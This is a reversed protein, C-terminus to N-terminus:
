VDRNYIKKVHHRGFIMVSVGLFNIIGFIAAVYRPSIVEAMAGSLLEGTVTGVTTIVAFIGNFRARHSDPIYSQTASIRINFSTVGLIGSLFMLLMMIPVPMFLVSGEMLSITLYVFLAIAFKKDVPYKFKYHILGGSFRGLVSFLTVYAYLQVGLDARSRFYPLAMLEMAGCFGSILFYVTICLLGPEAKLYRVGGVFDQAFRRLGTTGEESSVHTEETKISVEFCAAVFFCAANALFLPEIGVKGYIWAAVPTMFASLPYLLSSISYAKSFNGESVLNPYFSDYALQYVSSICGEFISLALFLGYNFLGRKLLLYIGIYLVASLFDLSYIATKRRFRDLIPGAVLPMLIFPLSFAVIYLTYLFTSNTYDLVLLSTAFGAISNGLISVASGVTIITFDRTWLKNQM